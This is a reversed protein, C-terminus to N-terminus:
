GLLVFRKTFYFYYFVDSIWCLRGNILTAKMFEEFLSMILNCPTTKTRLYSNIEFKTNKYAHDRFSFRVSNQREQVAHLSQNLHLSTTM